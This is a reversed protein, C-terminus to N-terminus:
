IRRHPNFSAALSSLGRKWMRAEGERRLAYERTQALQAEVERRMGEMTTRTQIEATATTSSAVVALEGELQQTVKATVCSSRADSYAVLESVRGKVEEVVHSASVVIQAALTAVKTEVEDRM